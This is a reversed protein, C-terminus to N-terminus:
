GAGTDEKQEPEEKEGRQKQVAKFLEDIEDGSAAAGQKNSRLYFQLHTSAAKALLQNDEGEVGVVFLKRLLQPLAAANIRVAERESLELIRENLEGELEPDEVFLEDFDVGLQKGAVELSGYKRFLRAAREILERREM